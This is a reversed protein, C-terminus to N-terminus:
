WVANGQKVCGATLKGKHSVHQFQLKRAPYDGTLLRDHSSAAEGRRLDDCNRLLSLLPFFGHSIQWCPLSSRGLLLKPLLMGRAQNLRCPSFALCEAKSSDGQRLLKRGSPSHM